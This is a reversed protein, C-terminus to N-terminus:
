EMKMKTALIEKALMGNMQIKKMGNYCNEVEEKIIAYKEKLKCVKKEKKIEPKTYKSKWEEVNTEYTKEGDCDFCFAMWGIDISLQHCYWEM